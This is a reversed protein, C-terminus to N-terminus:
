SIENIIEKINTYWECSTAAISDGYFTFDPICFNNKLECNNCKEKNKPTFFKKNSLNNQAQELLLNSIIVKNNIIWGVPLNLPTRVSDQRLTINKDRIFLKIGNQFYYQNSLLQGDRTQLLENKIERLYIPFLSTDIEHEPSLYIVGTKLNNLFNYIRKIYPLTKNTLTAKVGIHKKREEESINLINKLIKKYIKKNLSPNNLLSYPGDLSILIFYDDLQSLQQILNKTINIGNTMITLKLPHKFHCKLYNIIPFVQQKLYFLPEGGFLSFEVIGQEQCYNNNAFDIINYIDELPMKYIGKEKRHCSEYCYPCDLMCQNTLYFTYSNIKNLM